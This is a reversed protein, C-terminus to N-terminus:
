NRRKNEDQRIRLDELFAILLRSFTNHSDVYEAVYRLRCGKNKRCQEFNNLTSNKDISQLVNHTLSNLQDDPVSQIDRNSFLLKGDGESSSSGSDLKPLFLLVCIVAIFKVIMKFILIKLLIKCLTAFNLALPLGKLGSDPASYPAGYVPPLPTGYTSPASPGSPGSSGSPDSSSDYFHPIPPEHHPFHTYVVKPPEHYVNQFEPPSGHSDTYADLYTDRKTRLYKEASSSHSFNCLLFATWFIVECKKILSPVRRSM